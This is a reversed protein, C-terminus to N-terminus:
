REKSSRQFILRPRSRRETSRNRAARTVFGSRSSALAPFQALFWTVALLDATGGPSLQRAILADDFAAMKTVGDPGVVGGDLLLTKAYTRVYELGTLGGRSVVNTDDNVALLCLLVQLLAADEGFGGRRLDEYVPLAHTRVIAYGSAAAGRAGTFGYQRFIREGPTRPAQLGDLERELSACMDAVENCIRERNLEIRRALLRGAAACLLGLSFIAGKHTNVGGTADLM